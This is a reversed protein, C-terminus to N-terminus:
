VNFLFHSVDGDRLVYDKGELRVLGQKRAAAMSGTRALDEFPIVEARIFGRQIDSHIVGGAEVAVTGQRITWAKVEDEGVTLFSILGLLRYSAAIVRDRAPEGIGLAEMFEAAEADELQALEEEVRACFAQQDPHGPVRPPDAIQEEGVNLVPLVPKLSLLNFGRLGKAEAPSMQAERLPTERVEMFADLDTRRYRNRNHIKYVPLQGEKVLRWLTVSSRSLINWAPPPRSRM